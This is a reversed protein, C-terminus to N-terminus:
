FFIRSCNFSDFGLLLDTVRAIIKSRYLRYRESVKAVIASEYPVQNVRQHVPYSYFDKIQSTIFIFDADEMSETLTIQYTRRTEPDEYSTFPLQLIPEYTTYIKIIIPQGEDLSQQATVKEQQHQIIEALRKDKRIVNEQFDKESEVTQKSAWQKMQKDLLQQEYQECASAIQSELYPRTIGVHITEKWVIEQDFFALLWAALSYSFNKGILPLKELHLRHTPLSLAQNSM